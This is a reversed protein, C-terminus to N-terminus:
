SSCPNNLQTVLSDSPPTIRWLLNGPMTQKNFKNITCSATFFCIHSHILFPYLVRHYRWKRHIKNWTVETRPHTWWYFVPHSFWCSEAPIETVTHPGRTFNVLFSSSLDVMKFPYILSSFITWKGYNHSLKGLFIMIKLPYIWYLHAM